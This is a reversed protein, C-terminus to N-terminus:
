KRRGLIRLLRIFLNVFDLYLSFACCMGIQNTSLNQNNQAMLKIKQSDYAIFGIFLLVIFYNLAIDLGESKMFINVFTALIAGILGMLLLSGLKTLDKKTTLGIIGFLAFIAATLFFISKISELAYILFIISLTLGNLISYAIFLGGSLAINNSLSMRIAIFGVILEVIIIAIYSSNLIMKVALGSDYSYIATIGSILLAVFMYLFSKAICVNTRQMVQQESDYFGRDLNEYNTTNQQSYQDGYNYMDNNGSYNYSM